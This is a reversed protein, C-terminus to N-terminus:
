RALILWYFIQIKAYCAFPISWCVFIEDIFAFRSHQQMQCLYFCLLSYYSLFCVFASPVIKRLFVFVKFLLSLCISYSLLFFMFYCLVHTRKHTIFKTHTDRQCWRIIDIHLAHVLKRDIRNITNYHVVHMTYAAPRLIHLTCIHTEYVHFTVVSYGWGVSSLYM